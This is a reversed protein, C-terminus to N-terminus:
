SKIASVSKIEGKQIKGGSCSTCSLTAGSGGVTAFVAGDYKLYSASTPECTAVVSDLRVFFDCDPSARVLVTKKAGTGQVSVANIAGSLSSNAARIMEGTQAESATTLSYQILNMSVSSFLILMTVLIILYEVTIQAKKM